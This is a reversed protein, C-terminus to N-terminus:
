FVTVKGLLNYSYEITSVNGNTNTSTEKIVNGYKDYSYEVTENWDSIIAAGGLGVPVGYDPHRIDTKKILNGNKDYDYTLSRQRGEFDTSIQKTLNGNKDYSFDITTICKGEYTYVDKVLRGEENYTCNRVVEKDEYIHRVTKEHLGNENLFYEEYTIKEGTTVDRGFGEVLVYRFKGLHDASDKYDGLEEFIDYAEQYEGDGILEFAKKYKAEKIFLPCLIIAAILVVILAGGVILLKVTKKKREPETTAAENELTPETAVANQSTPETTIVTNEPTPETTPMVVQNEEIQYNREEM